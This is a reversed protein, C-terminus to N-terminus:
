NGIYVDPSGQNTHPNCHPPGVVPCLGDPNANDPTDNVVLKNNVYVENTAAILNGGGHTNPDGDVSILLKNAYVNNQGSVTTSAGCIRADTDRHVPDESM